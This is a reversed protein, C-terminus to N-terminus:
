QQAVPDPPGPVDVEVGQMIVPGNEPRQAERPMVSRGPTEVDGLSEKLRLELPRRPQEAHPTVADFRKHFAARCAALRHSNDRVGAQNRRQERCGDLENSDIAMLRLRTRATAIAANAPM